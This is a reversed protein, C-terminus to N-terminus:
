KVGFDGLLLFLGKPRNKVFLLDKLGGAPPNLIIIRTM